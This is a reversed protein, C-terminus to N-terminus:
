VAMAFSFIFGQSYCIKISLKFFIWSVAKYVAGWGGGGGCGGKPLGIFELCGQYDNNDRGGCYRM